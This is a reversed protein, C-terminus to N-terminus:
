LAVEPSGSAWQGRVPTTVSHWGIEGIASIIIKGRAFLLCNTSLCKLVMCSDQEENFNRRLKKKGTL